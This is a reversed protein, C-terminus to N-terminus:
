VKSMQIAKTTVHLVSSGYKPNDNKHKSDHPSFINLMMYLTKEFKEHRKTTKHLLDKPTYKLAYLLVRIGLHSDVSRPSSYLCIPQTYEKLHHIHYDCFGVSAKRAM